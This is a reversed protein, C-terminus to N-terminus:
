RMDAKQAIITVRHGEKAAQTAVSELMVGTPADDPPFYQNLFVLHM